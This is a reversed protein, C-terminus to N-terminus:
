QLSRGRVTSTVVSSWERETWNKEIRVIFAAKYTFGRQWNVQGYEIKSRYGPFRAVM